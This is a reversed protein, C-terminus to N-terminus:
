AKECCHKLKCDKFGTGLDIEYGKPCSDACIRPLLFGTCRDGKFEKEAEATINTYKLTGKGIQGRIVIILIVLVILGLVLVIIAQISLEVGKKDM